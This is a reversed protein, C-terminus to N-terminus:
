KGQAINRLADRLREYPQAGVVKFREAIIFTPAGTVGYARSEAMSREIRQDYEPNTLAARAADADMGAKAALSLLLDDDALNRGEVFYAQFLPMHLQDLKGADRAGEALMLAKHTNALIPPPNLPLGLEDAREKLGEYMRAMTAPDQRFYGALNVGEAPTDPHLEFPVWTV